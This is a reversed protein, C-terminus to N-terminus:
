ETSGDERPPDRHWNWSPRPWLGRNWDRPYVLAALFGTVTHGTDSLPLVLSDFAWAEGAIRRRGAASRPKGDALVVEFLRQCLSRFAPEPLDDFTAGTLDYGAAQAVGTGILRYRFLPRDPQQSDPQPSDPPRRAVEVLMVDKLIDHVAAPDIDARAPMSRDERLSQWYRHLRLLTQQETVVGEAHGM